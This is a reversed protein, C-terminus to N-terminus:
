LYLINRLVSQHSFMSFNKCNKKAKKKKNEILSNNSEMFYSLVENLADSKNNEFLFGAEGFSLFEKPGNKCNSSIVTTNSMAAEVIVFGIEEWLSPLILGKSRKMYYYVNNSHGFIRINNSLNLKKIQKNIKEKLEGNGIIILKENPNKQCFRGFEKVLYTYNKQKTFRGVSLFFGEKITKEPTFEKDNKKKRFDSVNIIADYLLFLKEKSFIKLSNLDQLLEKSPCTVKFIFNNSRKWFYNRLLNLKPYGSIRLILKTNFRFLNFLILPIFTLLHIILYDPKKKKLLKFLPFISFFMIVIYSFRSGLFGYKPLFKKYKFPFLDILEIGNKILFIKHENWEGFVNLIKIKFDKNYKSLAIASNITSKVTGVPTLCPSWYYVVKM